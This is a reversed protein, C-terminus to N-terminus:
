FMALSKPQSATCEPRVGCLCDKSRGGFQHDSTGPHVGLPDDFRVSRLLTRLLNELLLHKKSPNKSPAKYPNKTFVLNKSTRECLVVGKVHVRYARVSHRQSGGAFLGESTGQKSLCPFM